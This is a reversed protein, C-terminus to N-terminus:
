GGVLMLVLLSFPLILIAKRVEIRQHNFLLKVESSHEPILIQISAVPFKRQELIKIIEQGGIDDAGVIAVNFGEM